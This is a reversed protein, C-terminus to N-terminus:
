PVRFASENLDYGSAGAEPLPRQYHNTIPVSLLNNLSRKIAAADVWDSFNGLASFEENM